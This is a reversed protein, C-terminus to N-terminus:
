YSNVQELETRARLNVIEVAADKQRPDEPGDLKGVTGEVHAPVPSACQYRRLIHRDYVGELERAGEEHRCGDAELDLPFRGAWRLLEARAVRHRRGVRRREEACECRGTGGAPKRAGFEPKSEYRLGASVQVTAIRLDSRLPISDEERLAGSSARLTARAGNVRLGVGWSQISNSASNNRGAGTLVLKAVIIDLVV